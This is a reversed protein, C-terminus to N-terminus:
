MTVLWLQTFSVRSLPPGPAAAGLCPQAVWLCLCLLTLFNNHETHNILTVLSFSVGWMTNPIGMHMVWNLRNLDYVKRSLSYLMRLGVPLTVRDCDSGFIIWLSEKASLVCFTGTCGRRTVWISPILEVRGCWLQELEELNSHHIMSQSALPLSGNSQTRQFLRNFGM